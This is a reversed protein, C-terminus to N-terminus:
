TINHYSWSSDPVPEMMTVYCCPSTGDYHFGDDTVCTCQSSQCYFVSTADLLLYGACFVQQSDFRDINLLKLEIFFIWDDSENEPELWNLPIIM